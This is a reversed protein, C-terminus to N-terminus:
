LEQKRITSWCKCNIAEIHISITYLGFCILIITRKRTSKASRSPWRGFLKYQVLVQDTERLWTIVILQRHVKETNVQVRDNTSKRHEARDNSFQNTQVKWTRFIKKPFWSGWRNWRRSSTPTTTRRRDSLVSVLAMIVISCPPMVQPAISSGVFDEFAISSRTIMFKPPLFMTIARKQLLFPPKISLWESRDIAM